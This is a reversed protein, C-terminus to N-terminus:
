LGLKHRAEEYVTFFELFAEFDVQRISDGIVEFMLDVADYLSELPNPIESLGEIEYEIEECIEAWLEGTVLDQTAEAAVQFAKLELIYLAAKETCSDRVNEPNNGRYDSGIAVVYGLLGGLIGGPPGLVAGLAAGM